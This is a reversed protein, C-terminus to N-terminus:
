TSRFNDVEAEIEFGPDIAQSWTQQRFVAARLTVRVPM